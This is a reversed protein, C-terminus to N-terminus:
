RSSEPHNINAPHHGPRPRDGPARVRADRLRPHLRRLGRRRPHLPPRSAACTRASPSTNWRRAHHDGQPRIGAPDGAGAKARYVPRTLKFQPALHKGQAFGNDEPKVERPNLVPAIDGRDLQGPVERPPLGKEIDITVTPDTYPGSPRLDDGAARQRQSARRGRPVARPHGPFLEGAVYVKRSGAREGTPITGTEKMVAERADKLALDVNPEEPRPPPTVSINM